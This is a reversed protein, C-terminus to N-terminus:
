DMDNMCEIKIMEMGDEMWTIEMSSEIYDNGYQRSDM